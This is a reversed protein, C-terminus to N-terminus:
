PNIVKVYVDLVYGEFENEDSMDDDHDIFEIDDGEVAVHRAVAIFSEFISNPSDLINIKCGFPLSSGNAGSILNFRLQLAQKDFWMYFLVKINSIQVIQCRRKQLLESLFLILVETTIRQVLDSNFAMAWMNIDIEEDLLFEQGSIYIPAEIVKQLDLVTNIEIYNM